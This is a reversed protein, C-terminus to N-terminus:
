DPLPTTGLESTTNGSFGITVDGSGSLLDLAAMTEVSTTEPIIYYKM